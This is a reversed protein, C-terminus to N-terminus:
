RMCKKYASTLFDLKLLACPKTFGAGPTCLEAFMNVTPYLDVGLVDSSPPQSPPLPTVLKVPPLLEHYFTIPVGNKKFTPERFLNIHVGYGGGEGGGSITGVHGM